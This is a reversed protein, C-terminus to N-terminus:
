FLITVSTHETDAVFRLDLGFHEPERQDREREILGLNTVESDPVAVEITEGIM